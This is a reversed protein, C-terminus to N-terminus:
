AGSTDRCARTSIRSALLSRGPHNDTMTIATVASRSPTMV